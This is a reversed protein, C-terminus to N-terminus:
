AKINNAAYFLATYFKINTPDAQWAIYEPTHALLMGNVRVFTNVDRRPYGENTVREKVKLARQGPFYYHAHPDTRRTETSFRRKRWKPEEPHLADIAQQLTKM